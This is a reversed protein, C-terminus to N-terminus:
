KRRRRTIALTAFIIGGFIASVLALGTVKKIASWVLTPSIHEAEVYYRCVSMDAPSKDVGDVTLSARTLVFIQKVFADNLGSGIIEPLFYNILRLAEVNTPRKAAILALDSLSCVFGPLCEDRQAIYARLRVLDEYLQIQSKSLPEAAQHHTKQLRKARQMLAVFMPNRYHPEPRGTWVDKCREQSLTIVRMLRPQMRLVDAAALKTAKVDHTDHFNEDQDAVAVSEMITDRSENSFSNAQTQMPTYFDGQGNAGFDTGAREVSENKLRDNENEDPISLYTSGDELQDFFDDGDEYAQIRKLTAALSEAVLKSEDYDDAFFENHTLDRMMLLRLKLLYHVDYRGYLIMKKSLPRQRWDTTQYVGKLDAYDSSHTLGYHQCVAALGHSPLNLVKSAEYTDFANCIFIGFDRHLCRADLGGISHGVKIIAPNAFIPALGCVEDWVGPALPDVVYETGLNSTLQLLCTLQSYKSLNYAEIDFALETLGGCKFLTRFGLSLLFFTDIGQFSPM